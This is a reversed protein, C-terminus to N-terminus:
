TYDIDPWLGLIADLRRKVRYTRNNFEPKEGLKDLAEKLDNFERIFESNKRVLYYYTRPPSAEFDNYIHEIRAPEYVPCKNTLKGGATEPVVVLYEDGSYSQKNEWVPDGEDEVWVMDLTITGPATEDTEIGLDESLEEWIHEAEESATSQGTRLLRVVTPIPWHPARDNAGDPEGTADDHAPENGRSSEDDPNENEPNRDVGYVGVLHALNELTLPAGALRKWETFAERADALCERTDAVIVAERLRNASSNSLNASGTVIFAPYKASVAEALIMKAHLDQLSYISAGARMWATLVKPDTAGSRVTAETADTIITSGVGVPMLAVAGPGVYAVAATLTTKYPELAPTLTDWVRKGTLLRVSTSDNLISPASHDTKM